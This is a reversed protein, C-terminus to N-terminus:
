ALLCYHLCDNDISLQWNQYLMAAFYNTAITLFAAILNSMTRILANSVVTIDNTFKSIIDGSQKQRFSGFDSNYTSKLMQKQM